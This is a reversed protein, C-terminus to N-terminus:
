KGEFNKLLYKKFLIYKNKQLQSKLNEQFNTVLFAIFFYFKPNPQRATQLWPNPQKRRPLRTEQCDQDRLSALQCKKVGSKVFSANKLLSQCQFNTNPMKEFIQCKRANKLVVQCQFNGKPM